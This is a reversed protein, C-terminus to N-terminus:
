REVAALSCVIALFLLGRDSTTPEKWRSAPCLEPAADLGRSLGTNVSHIIPQGLPHVANSGTSISDHSELARCCKSEQSPSCSLVLQHSPLPHSIASPM